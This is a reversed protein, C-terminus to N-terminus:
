ASNAAKVERRLPSRDLHLWATLAAVGLLLVMQGSYGRSYTHHMVDFSALDGAARASMMRPYLQTALYVAWGYAMAALGARVTLRKRCLGSLLAYGLGSVLMLAGAALVVTNFRGFAGALATGAFDFLPMGRETHGASRAAGFVAPAAVAGLIAIGGLWLSLCLQHIWFLFVAALNRM